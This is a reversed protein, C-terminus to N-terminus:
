VPSEAIWLQKFMVPGKELANTLIPLKTMAKQLNRLGMWGMIVVCLLEADFQTM